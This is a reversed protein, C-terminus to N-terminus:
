LHVIKNILHQHLVENLNKIAKKLKWAEKNRPEVFNSIARVQAYQVKMLECAYM